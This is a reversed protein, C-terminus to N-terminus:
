DRLVELSGPPKKSQAEKPGAEILHHVIFKSGFLQITTVFFPQDDPRSCNDILSYLVPIAEEFLLKDEDAIRESTPRNFRKAEKLAIKGIQGDPKVRKNEQLQQNNFDLLQKVIDTQTGPGVFAGHLLTHLWTTLNEERAGLAGSGLESNAADRFLELHFKFNVWNSLATSRLLPPLSAVQPSKCFEEITTGKVSFEDDIM